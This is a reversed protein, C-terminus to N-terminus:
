LFFFGELHANNLPMSPTNNQTLFVEKTFSGSATRVPLLVPVTLVFKSLKKTCDITKRM